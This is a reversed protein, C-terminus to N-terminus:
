FFCFCFSNDRLREKVVTSLGKICKRLSEKAKKPQQKVEKPSGGLGDTRLYHRMSCPLYLQALAMSAMHLLM